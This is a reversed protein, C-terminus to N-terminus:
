WTRIIREETLKDVNVYINQGWSTTLRRPWLFILPKTQLSGIEDITISGLGQVTGAGDTIIVVVQAERFGYVSKNRLTFQLETAFPLEKDASLINRFEMDNFEWQALPMAAREVVSMRQWKVNLLNVTASVATSSGVGAFPVRMATLYKEQQPTLNTTEQTISRGGLFVEYDVQTAAWQENTNLFKFVVDMSTDDHWVAAVQSVQIDAPIGGARFNVVNTPFAQWIQQTSRVHFAWTIIQVIFVMWIISVTGVLVGLRVKHLLTRHTAVWYALSLEVDALNKRSKKENM